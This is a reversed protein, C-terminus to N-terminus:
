PVAQAQVFLTGSYSGAQLNPLTSLNINFALTNFSIGTRNSGTIRVGFIQRAAGAAGFPGTQNLPLLAGGNVRMEFASSPIHTCATICSVQALAATPSTFYAWVSLNRNQGPNLNLWITTTTISVNGNNIASGPNLPNGTANDWRVLNGNLLVTLSQAGARGPMWLALACLLVLLALKCGSKMRLASLIM